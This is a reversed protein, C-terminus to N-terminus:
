KNDDCYHGSPENLVCIEIDDDGNNLTIFIHELCIDSFHRM